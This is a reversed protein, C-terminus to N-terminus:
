KCNGNLYEGKYNRYYIKAKKIDTTVSKYQKLSNIEDDNGYYEEVAVAVDDISPILKDTDEVVEQQLLSKDGVCWKNDLYKDWSQVKIYLPEDSDVEFLINNSQPVSKIDISVNSKAESTNLKKSNAGEYNTKITDAIKNNFKPVPIVSTFLILIILSVIIFKINVEKNLIDKKLNKMIYLLLFLLIFMVFSFNIGKECRGVHIFLPIFGILLIVITRKIVLTFYFVVSAFFYSFLIASVIYFVSNCEGGYPAVKAWSLYSSDGDGMLLLFLISSILVATMIVYAVIGQKKRKEVYDLFIFLPIHIISVVMICLLLSKDTMLNLIWSTCNISFLLPIISERINLRLEKM